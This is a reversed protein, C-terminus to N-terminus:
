KRSLTRLRDRHESLTKELMELHEQNRGIVKELGCRECLRTQGPYGTFEGCEECACCLTAAERHKYPALCRTCLWAKGLKPKM